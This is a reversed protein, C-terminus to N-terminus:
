WDGQWQKNSDNGRYNEARAISPPMPPRLRESVVKHGGTLGPWACDQHGKIQCSFGGAADAAQLAGSGPQGLEVSTAVFPSPWPRSILLSSPSKCWISGLLVVCIVATCLEPPAPSLATDGPCGEERHHLPLDRKSSADTARLLVPVATQRPSKCRKQLVGKGACVENGQVCRM